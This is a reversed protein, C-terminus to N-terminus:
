SSNETVKSREQVKPKCAAATHAACLLSSRLLYEIAPQSAFVFRFLVGYKVGM